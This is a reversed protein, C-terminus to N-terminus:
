AWLSISLFYVDSSMDFQSLSWHLIQEGRAKLVYFWSLNQSHKDMTLKMFYVRFIGSVNLYPCIFSVFVSILCIFLCPVHRLFHLESFCFIQLMSKFSLRYCCFCALLLERFNPNVWWTVFCLDVSFMVSFFCYHILINLNINLWGVVWDPFKFVVLLYKNRNPRVASIHSWSLQNTM